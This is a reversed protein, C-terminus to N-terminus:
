LIYTALAAWVDVDFPGGSPPRATGPLSGADRGRQGADVIPLSWYEQYGGMGVTADSTRRAEEVQLDPAPPM